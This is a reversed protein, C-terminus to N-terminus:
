PQEHPQESEPQSASELHKFEEATMRLYVADSDADAIENMPILHQHKLIHGSIVVLGQLKGDDTVRLEHVNGVHHGEVSMVKTGKAVGFENESLSSQTTVTTANMDTIGILPAGGPDLQQGLSTAGALNPASLPLMGRVAGEYGYMEVQVDAPNGTVFETVFYQPLARFQEDTVTLHITDDADVREVNRLPVIVDDGMWQTHVVFSDLTQQSTDVVLKSVKGAEQGDQTWVRAGLEIRM